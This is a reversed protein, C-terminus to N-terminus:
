KINASNDSSALVPSNTTVAEPHLVSSQFCSLEVLRFVESKRETVLVSRKHVMNKNTYELTLFRCECLATIWEGEKSSLIGAVAHGSKVSRSLSSCPAACRSYSLNSSTRWTVLTFQLQEVIILTKCHCKNVM